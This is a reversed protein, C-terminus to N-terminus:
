SAAIFISSETAMVNRMGPQANSGHFSVTQTLAPVRKPVSDCRRVASGDTIGAKGGDGRPGIAALLTVVPHALQDEPVVSIRFGFPYPDNSLALGPCEDLLAKMHRTNLRVLLPLRGHSREFEQILGLLYSLM